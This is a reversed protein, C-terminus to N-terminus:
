SRSTALVGAMGVLVAGTGCDLRRRARAGIRAARLVTGGLVYVTGAVLEAALYLAGLVALQLPVPGRAPDVFQPVFATFVLVAKPNTIATLFERRVLARPSVPAADDSVGDPGPSRLGAVLM